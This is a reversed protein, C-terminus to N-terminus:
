PTFSSLLEGIGEMLAVIEALDRQQRVGGTRRRNPSGHRGLQERKRAPVKQREKVLLRFQARNDVLLDGPSKGHKCDDGAPM